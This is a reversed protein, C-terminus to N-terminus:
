KAWLVYNNVHHNGQMRSFGDCTVLALIPDKTAGWIRQDKTLAYKDKAEKNYVTFTKQGGGSYTVIVKAGVPVKHLNYFVDPGNWTVHGLIKSIGADGPKADNTYWSVRGSRPALTNNHATVKGLYQKLGISPIYIAVPNGKTSSPRSAPNASDKVPNGGINATQSVGEFGAYGKGDAAKKGVGSTYEGNPSIKDAPTKGGQPLKKNPDNAKETSDAASGGKAATESPNASESPTVTSVVGKDNTTVSPQDAKKDGGSCASLAVSSALLTAVAISNIKKM